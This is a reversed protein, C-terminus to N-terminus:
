SLTEVTVVPARGPGSRLRELWQVIHAAVSRHDIDNLVDHRGGRVIGLEAGPLRAAISRAIEPATVPDADGHLLLVPLDVRALPLRASLLAPPPPGSLAGRVFRDDETLRARHTPCATRAELEDDWSLRPQTDLDALGALIVGAPPRPLAAAVALAQLAGTDSGALVLPGSVPTESVLRAHDLGPVGRVADLASEMDDAPTGLLFTTERLRRLVFAATEAGQAEAAKAALSSPRSSRAVWRLRSAYPAGTHAAVGAIYRHYWAAEADPDPPPDDDDDFLIGYVRRWTAVDDLAARLWRFKPESGLGVPM